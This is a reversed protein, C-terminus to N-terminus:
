EFVVPSCYNLYSHLRHNNYCLIYDVVDREAERRSDYISHDTRERKLSGFFREMVANDWCNGKRSMSCVMGIKKLEAQYDHSAYKSGQDSHHLLGKVLKRAWYAMRLAQLPLDTAMCSSMAWGVIKRSYLDVVAALYLWGERTWLYTIDVIWAKNPWPLCFRRDLLNDEVPYKHKSNITAKFKKAKRM